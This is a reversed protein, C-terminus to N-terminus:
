VMILMLRGAMHKAVSPANSTCRSACVPCCSSLQFHLHSVITREIPLYSMLYRCAVPSGMIRRSLTRCIGMPPSHGDMLATMSDMLADALYGPRCQTHITNNYLTGAVSVLSWFCVLRALQEAGDGGVGAWGRQGRGHHLTWSWGLWAGATPWSGHAAM